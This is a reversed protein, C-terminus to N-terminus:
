GMDEPTENPDHSMSEEWAYCEGWGTEYSDAHHKNMEGKECDRWGRMFEKRCWKAHEDARWESTEIAEEAPKDTMAKIGQTIHMERIAESLVAISEDLEKTDILTLKPFKLKDGM